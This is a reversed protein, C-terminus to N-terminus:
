LLRWLLYFLSKGSSWYSKGTEIKKPNRYMMRIGCKMFKTHISGLRLLCGLLPCLFAWIWVWCPGPGLLFYNVAFCVGSIQPNGYIIYIYIYVCVMIYWYICIYYLICYVQRLCRINRDDTSPIRMWVVRPGQRPVMQRDCIQQNMINM